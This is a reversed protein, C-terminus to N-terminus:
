INRFNKQRQTKHITKIPINQGSKEDIKFQNHSDQKIILNENFRSFDQDVIYTM